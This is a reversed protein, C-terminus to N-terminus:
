VILAIATALVLAWRWSKKVSRTFIVETSTELSQYLAKRIEGASVASGAPIYVSAYLNSGAQVALQWYKDGAPGMVVPGNFQQDIRYGSVLYTM